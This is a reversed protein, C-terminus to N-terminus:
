RGTRPDLADRLGDGVLNFALTTLFLFLGPFFMTWWAFTFTNAASSLMQGWSPTTPPVGVGLFSLAAEFLINNPIILTSYVLIPAIVNPLIERFMIRRNSSGLARAAEVFEKERLSLVQGRVIRSIYPWSFLGIIMAVLLMGPKILGGLCGPAGGGPPPLSCGAALGLAFLLVPMSMVIDTLRSLFTDVKGRYFGATLGVLVGIVISIGTAGLAIIISTRAGYLTRIFVDSRGNDCGFWYDKNPGRPRELPIEVEIGNIVAITNISTVCTPYGPLNIFVQNPDRDIANSVVPAFLGILSMLLVLGLGVFALKDKRFRRWFLQWPSRGQVQQGPVGSGAGPGAPDPAPEATIQAM